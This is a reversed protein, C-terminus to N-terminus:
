LLLKGELNELEEMEDHVSPFQRETEHAPNLHVHM